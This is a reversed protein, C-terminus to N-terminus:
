GCHIPQTSFIPPAHARCPGHCVQVFGMGLQSGFVDVGTGVSVLGNLQGGSPQEFGLIVGVGIVPVICHQEGHADRGLLEHKLEEGLRSIWKASATGVITMGSQAALSERPNRVVTRCRAHLGNWGSAGGHSKLVSLGVAQALFDM